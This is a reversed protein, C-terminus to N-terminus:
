NRSPAAAFTSPAVSPIESSLNEEIQGATKAILFCQTGQPAFSFRSPQDSLFISQWSGGDVRYTAVAKNWEIRVGNREVYKRKDSMMQLIKECDPPSSLPFFKGQKEPFHLKIVAIEEPNLGEYDEFRKQIEELLQPDPHQADVPPLHTESRVKREYRAVAEEVLREILSSM